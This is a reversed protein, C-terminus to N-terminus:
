LRSIKMNILPFIFFNGVVAMMIEEDFIGMYINQSMNQSWNLAMTTWFNIEVRVLGGVCASM